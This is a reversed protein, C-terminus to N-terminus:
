RQTALVILLAAAIGGLGIGGLVWFLNMGQQITDAM